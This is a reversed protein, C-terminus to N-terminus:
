YTVVTVPEIRDFHDVNRTVVAHDHVLATAAIMVDAEDIREGDRILGANVRGAEMACRRDFPLETLNEILDEVADRESTSADALYIGEILEMVTVSSVCPTGADDIEAVRESVQEDGRLVDILFTSDLIM